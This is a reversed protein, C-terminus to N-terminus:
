KDNDINRRERGKDVLVSRVSMMLNQYLPPFARGAFPVVNASSITYYGHLVETVSAFLATVNSYRNQSLKTLFGAFPIEGDRL